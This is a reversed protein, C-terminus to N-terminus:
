EEGLLVSLDEIKRRLVEAEDDTLDGRELLEKSTFLYEYVSQHYDYM